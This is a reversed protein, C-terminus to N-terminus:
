YLFYLTIKGLDDFMLDKVFFYSDTNNYVLKSLTQSEIHKQFLKLSTAITDNDYSIYINIKDSINLNADKRTQQIFRILDRAIGELYLEEDVTLDLMVLGDNGHLAAMNAASKPILKFTFEDQNLIIDDIKVQAQAFPNGIVEWEKNKSKKILNQILHPFKKGLTPINLSLSLNAYDLILNQDLNSWEKVNIEDLILEKMDDSLNNNIGIFTVKKLPQRVRIKSKHRINLAAQCAEKVRDMNYILEEDIPHDFIPFDTLHISEQTPNLNLFIEESIM